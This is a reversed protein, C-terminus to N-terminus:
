YADVVSSPDQTPQVRHDAAPGPFRAPSLSHLLDPDADETAILGIRDEPLIKKLAYYFPPSFSVPTREIGRLYWLALGQRPFNHVHVTTGTGRYHGVLKRILRLTRLDEGELNLDLRVV